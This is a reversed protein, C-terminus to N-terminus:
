IHELKAPCSPHDPVNESPWAGRYGYLLKEIFAAALFLQVWEIDLKYRVLNVHTLGYVFAFYLLIGVITIAVRKHQRYLIFVGILAFVNLVLLPGKRIIWFAATNYELYRPPVWFYLAMQIASKMIYETPHDEITKVVAAKYVPEMEVDNKIHSLALVEAALRKDVVYFRNVFSENNVETTKEKFTGRTALTATEDFPLFGVYVNMFAPSKAIIIKSFQWYNRITWPTLVLIGVAAILVIHRRCCAFILYGIGAAVVPAAIPQILVLVASLFALLAAILPTRSKAYLLLVILWLISAPVFINTIEIVVPYYFYSPHFLFCLGAIKGLRKMALLSGLSALLIPVTSALLEQVVVIAYLTNQGFLTIFSWLLLPYIPAKLATPQGFLTYGNGNALNQAIM